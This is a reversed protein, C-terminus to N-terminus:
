EDNARRFEKLKQYAQKINKFGFVSRLIKEIEKARKKDNKYVKVHESVLNQILNAEGANIKKEM